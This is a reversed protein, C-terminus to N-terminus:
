TLSTFIIYTSTVKKFVYMSTCLFGILISITIPSIFYKKDEENMWKFEEM